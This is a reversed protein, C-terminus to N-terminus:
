AYKCRRVQATDGIAGNYQAKGVIDSASRYIDRDSEVTLDKFEVRKMKRGPLVLYWGTDSSPINTTGIVETIRHALPENSTGYAVQLNGMTATLMKQLRGVKEVACVAYFSPNNGIAYGKTRCARIIAAAATNATTVDDTTFNVDVSSSLATLLGYFLEAKKQFHQARFEAIAEDINWFMQRELWRDLIGIGAAFELLGVSTKAETINRRIDVAGGPQRQTFSIGANTDILDYHDHMSTRLDVMDFLVTYGMDMEPMNTHFFEAFQSALDVLYPTDSPTTYKRAMFSKIQEIGPSVPDNSAFGAQKSGLEVGALSASKGGIDLAMAVKGLEFAIAGALMKYQQDKPKGELAKWNINTHM